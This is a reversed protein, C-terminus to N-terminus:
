WGALAAARELHIAPTGLFVRNFIARKLLIQVDCEWTFGIGGHVEVTDRAIDLFMSTAHAKALAASRGSEDKIHDFAFAAYWCLFRTPDVRIAMNALQHKIGQFHGITVGFQERIKAYEVAMNLCRSAGGYADAALLVLGADRVRSAALVGDPLLEYETQDFVVFGLRRTQDAGKVPQIDFGQSREVVVLGGGNVGVVLLDAIDAYLVHNKTGTLTGHARVAWDEPQWGAAEAFAVTGILDGSSLRPLWRQKQEENGALLIALSALSHGMLPGPVAGAGLAECFVALDLLELGAGGYAEPILAGCVGMDILSQWLSDDHGSPSNFIERVRMLPCENEVWHAATSFFLEQEESLDFDM